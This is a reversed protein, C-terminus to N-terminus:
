PRAYMVTVEFLRNSRSGAKLHNGVIWRQPIALQPRRVGARTARSPGAETPSPQKSSLSRKQSNIFCYRAM